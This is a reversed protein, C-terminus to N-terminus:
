PTGTPCTDVARLGGVGPLDVPVTGTSTRLTLAGSGNSEVTGCRVTGDRWRVEVQPGTKPPGYWTTAVAACLLAACGFALFVGRRLATWSDLAEDQLAQAEPDNSSRNVLEATSVATPRGHAARMLSWASLAGVVLAAALMGGVIADYPGALQGVDTRGKVLGFGVLGALLAGLGNRWATAAARVRDLEGGQLRVQARAARRDVATAQPGGAIRYQTM